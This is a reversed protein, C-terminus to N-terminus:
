PPSCVLGWGLIWWMLDYNGRIDYLRGAGWGGLFSGLQHSFFVIGWLMSMADVGSCTFSSAAPLRSLASGSSAWAFGLFLLVSVSTLPLALFMVFAAARLAYLLALMEKKPFRSGLWAWILSGAINFLASLASPGARWARPGFDVHRFFSM